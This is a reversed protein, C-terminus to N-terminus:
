QILYVFQPGTPPPVHMGSVTITPNGSLSLTGVILRGFTRGVNGGLSLPADPLYLTGDVDLRVDGTASVATTNGRAQFFGVGEYTGSSPPSIHVVSTGTARLGAGYQLFLTVGSTADIVANGGLNIGRGPPLNGIVYIGPSLVATGGNMDIGGPYYGPAYNGGGLIESQIPMGVISPERLSALPDPVVPSGPIVDGIITGGGTCTNGAIRMRQAFLHAAAGNSSVACANSSNVQVTGAEVNLTVNGNMTLADARSSDLVFVLPNDPYGLRAIASRGGEASNESFLIGFFLRLAPNLSQAGCRARVQVADPAPDLPEFRFGHSAADYKWRGVVVDGPIANSPNPDLAVGNKACGVVHNSAANRVAMRRTIDYNTQGLDNIRAAGALAASDAARQLQMRATLVWATDLALGVLAVFLLASFATLV